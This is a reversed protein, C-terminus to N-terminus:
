FLSVTMIQSFLSDFNLYTVVLKRNMNNDLNNTYHKKIQKFAIIKDKKVHNAEKGNEM